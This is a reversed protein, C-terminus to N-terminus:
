CLEPHFTAGSVNGQKVLVPEGKYTEVVDVGEGVRTIRPARIFVMKAGTRDGSAEFSETQPGWANRAVEVDIWGYKAALILGACTGLVPKGSEVFGDLAERLGFREILKAQVTSEGGPLVLADCAALDESTRVLKAVDGRAVVAEAHAAFGGQLALIGVVSKAEGGM